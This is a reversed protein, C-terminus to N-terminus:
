TEQQLLMCVSATISFLCIPFFHMQKYAAKLPDGFDNPNMMKPGHIDSSCKM